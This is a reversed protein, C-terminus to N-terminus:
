AAVSEYVELLQRLGQRPTFRQEYVTRGRRSMEDVFEDDRLRHLGPVWGEADGGAVCCRDDVLRALEGGAGLDSALIPLRAAMAEALVLGFTEYARSPFVLARSCLMTERLQGPSVRGALRVGPPLRSGLESRL